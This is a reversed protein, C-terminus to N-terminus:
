LKIIIVFLVITVLISFLTGLLYYEAFEQKESIKNYRTISKATFVLGIATYQGLYLFVCVLLREMNGILKGVNKTDETSVKEVPKTHGFIERFSINTPKLIAMVLLVYRLIDNPINGDWWMISWRVLAVENLNYVASVVVISILHLLQDLVYLKGSNEENEIKKGIGYKIIDIILHSAVFAIIYYLINSKWLPLFVVMSLGLIYACHLFIYRIKDSKKKALEDNQLYFDGALHLILLVILISKDM